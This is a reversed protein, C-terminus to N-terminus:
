SLGTGGFTPVGVYQAFARLMQEHSGAECNMIHIIAEGGMRPRLKELATRYGAYSVLSSGGIDEDGVWCQAKNGHDLLFLGDVLTDKPLTEVTRIVDSLNNVYYEGARVAAALWTVASQYASDKRETATGVCRIDVFKM